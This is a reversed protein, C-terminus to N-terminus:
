TRQHFGALSTSLLLNQLGDDHYRKQNLLHAPSDFPRPRNVRPACRIFNLM